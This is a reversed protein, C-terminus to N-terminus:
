RERFHRRLKRTRLGIGIYIIYYLATCGHRIEDMVSRGGARQNFKIDMWNVKYGDLLLCLTQSTVYSFEDCILSSYKLILDRKVIRLGTNVDPLYRGAVISACLKLFMRGWLRKFSGQHHLRRGLLMDNNGMSEWLHVLDDVEYQGDADLLAVYKTKAKRCGFKFAAGCGKNKRRRLVYAGYVPVDSHDDIILYSFGSERLAKTIRNIVAQCENYAPIIVTLQKKSLM